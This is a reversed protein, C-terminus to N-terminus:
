GKKGKGTSFHSVEEWIKGRAGGEGMLREEWAVFRM